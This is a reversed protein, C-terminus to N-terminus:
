PNQIRHSEDNTHFQDNNVPENLDYKPKKCLQVIVKVFGNIFM